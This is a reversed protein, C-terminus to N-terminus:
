SADGGGRARGPRGSNRGPAGRSRQSSRGPAQGGAISKATDKAEAMMALAAPLASPRQYGFSAAKM